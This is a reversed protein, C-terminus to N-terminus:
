RPASVAGSADGNPSSSEVNPPASTRSVVSVPQAGKASSAASEAPTESTTKAAPNAKDAAGETRRVRSSSSAPSAAGSAADRKAQADVAPAAPATIVAAPTTTVPTSGKSAEGSTRSAPAQVPQAETERRVKSGSSSSGSSSTPPLSTSPTAVEVPKSSQPTTKERENSRTSRPEEIIEPSPRVDQSGRSSTSPRDVRPLSPRAVPEVGGRPNIGGYGNPGTVAPRRERSPTAEEPARGVDARPREDTHSPARGGIGSSVEQNPGQADVLPPQQRRAEPEVPRRERSEHGRPARTGGIMGGGNGEVGTPSTTGGSPRDSGGEPREGYYGGYPVYIPTPYYVPYSGYPYDAGVQTPYPNQPPPYYGAYPNHSYPNPSYTQPYYAGRCSCDGGSGKDAVTRAGSSAESGAPTGTYTNTIHVCGSLGLALAVAAAGCRLITIQM